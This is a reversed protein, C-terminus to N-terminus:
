KVGLSQLACGVLHDVNWCAYLQFTIGSRFGDKTVTGYFKWRRSGDFWPVSVWLSAVGSGTEYVRVAETGGKEKSWFYSKVIM